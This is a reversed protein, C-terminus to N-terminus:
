TASSIISMYLSNFANVTNEKPFVNLISFVQNTKFCNKHVLVAPSSYVDPGVALHPDLQGAVSPVIRVHSTFQEEGGAVTTPHHHIKVMHISLFVPKSAAM